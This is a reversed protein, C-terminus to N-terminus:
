PPATTEHITERLLVGLVYSAGKMVGGAVKKEKREVTLITNEGLGHRRILLLRLFLRLLVAACNTSTDRVTNYYYNLRIAVEPFFRVHSPNTRPPPM